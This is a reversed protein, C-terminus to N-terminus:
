GMWSTIKAELGICIKTFAVRVWLTIETREKRQECNRCRELSVCANPLGPCTSSTAAAIANRADSSAANIVPALKGTSPPRCAIHGRHFVCQYVYVYLTQRIIKYEYVCVWVNDWINVCVCVYSVRIRCFTNKTTCYLFFIKSFKWIGTGCTLVAWSNLGCSHTSLIIM